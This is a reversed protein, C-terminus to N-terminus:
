RVFVELPDLSKDSGVLDVEQRLEKPVLLHPKPNLPFGAGVLELSKFTSALQRFGHVRGKAMWTKQPLELEQISQVSASASIPLISNCKPVL